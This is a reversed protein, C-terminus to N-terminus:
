RQTVQLSAHRNRARSSATSNNTAPNQEGLGQTTLRDPSIGRAALATKISDARTQSLEFNREASGVSDAYAAINVHVNPYAGLIAAINDLQKRSEPRLAASGLDFNLHDFAVWSTRDLPAKPDQILVLLQSAPGNAPITIDVNNPLKRKVFHGFTFDDDVMRSASGAATSGIEAAPKRDHSLLVFIGLVLGCLAVVPIGRRFGTEGKVYHAVLPYGGAAAPSRLGFLENLDAPLISRIAPAERQLITRPGVSTLSMGEERVRKCLSTMVMPAAMALLTSTTSADLGCTRGVARTVTSELTGFLSSVVRKGRTILASDPNSLESALHPWDVDGSNGPTLDLIRRLSFPDDSKSTMGALVAAISVEMCRSVSQESVGLLNATESVSRGDLTSLLSALMSEYM